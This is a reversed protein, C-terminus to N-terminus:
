GAPHAPPTLTTSHTLPPPPSSPPAAVKQTHTPPSEMTEIQDRDGTSAFQPQPPPEFVARGGLMAASPKGPSCTEPPLTKFFECVDEMRNNEAWRLRHGKKNPNDAKRAVPQKKGSPSLWYQPVNGGCAICKEPPFTCASAPLDSKRCYECRLRGM